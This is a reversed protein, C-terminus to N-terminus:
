DTFISKPYRGGMCELFTEFLWEFSKTTEEYLLATGFICMHNHHTKGVFIALPRHHKNTRYTTDFIFCDGFARYDRRM